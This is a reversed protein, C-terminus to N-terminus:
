VAEEFERALARTARGVGCGFDLVTGRAAPAGLAELQAMARDVERQGGEFFADLEWRGFRRDTGAPIAWLPDLEGLEEWERKNAAVSVAAGYRRRLGDAGLDM